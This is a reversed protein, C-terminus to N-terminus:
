VGVSPVLLLLLRVAPSGMMQAVLPGVKAFIQLATYIRIGSFVFANYALHWWCLVPQIKKKKKAM